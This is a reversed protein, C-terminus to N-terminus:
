NNVWFGVATEATCPSSMTITFSGAGPTVSTVFCTADARQAMAHILSTVTVTSNTVVLTSAGAAFNVSGNPKNITQAGTTGATTLTRQLLISQIGDLRFTANNTTSALRFQGTHLNASMIQLSSDFTFNYAADAFSNIYLSGSAPVVFTTSLAAQDLFMQHSSSGILYLGTGSAPTLASGFTATGATNTWQFTTGNWTAPTDGLVTAATFRPIHNATGSGSIPGGGPLGTVTANSFDVNGYFLSYRTPCPVYQIDGIALITINAFLKSPNPCKSSIKSAGGGSQAQATISCIAFVIIFLITTLFKHKM